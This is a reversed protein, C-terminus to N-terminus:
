VLDTKVLPKQVAKWARGRLGDWFLYFLFLFNYKLYRPGLRVPESCLRYLWGLGSRQMWLPSDKKTGANVDFAFGVALVIGRKIEHKHRHIWSQQRPTGMGIWIFDPSLRNIEEVIESEEDSKFYGSRAGVFKISPVKSIFFDRLRRVCEESGGLLYHTFPAPSKLLCERMFTPGYVRDRLKAGQWNLCWILPMADPIFYDFQSTLERFQPDHRRMTVIHTNTFDVAFANSQRSQEQLEVSLEAYTTRQLPTGLVYATSSKM